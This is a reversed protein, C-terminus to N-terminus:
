RGDKKVKVNMHLHLWINQLQFPHYPRKYVFQVMCVFFLM